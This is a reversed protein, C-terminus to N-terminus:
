SWRNFSERCLDQVRQLPYDSSLQEAGESDKTLNRRIQYYPMRPLM